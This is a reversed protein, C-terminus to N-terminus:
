CSRHRILYFFYKRYRCSWHNARTGILGHFTNEKVSVNVGDLARLTGFQKGVEKVELLAM